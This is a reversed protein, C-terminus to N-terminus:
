IALSGRAGAWVRGEAAQQARAALYQDIDRAVLRAQERIEPVATLEWHSGRALTGLAYLTRQASGDRSIVRSRPDTALGLALADSQAIGEAVANRLLPNAVRLPHTQPGTCNILVAGELMQRGAAQRLTARLARRAAIFELSELRGRTVKLQGRAIARNLTAHVAPALRHRHVDWFPRVHRLFRRQESLNWASWLAPAMSRLETMVGRWRDGRVDEGSLERVEKVIARLSAPFAGHLGAPFEVATGHSRPLLARRSFALVPGAHRRYVLEAVVDVATLSTGAILVAAHRPIAEKREVEWPNNLILNQVEPALDAGLPTPPENGTALVVIDAPVPAGQTPFVKWGGGDAVVRAAVARLWSLQINPVARISQLRSQLYEGYFQRPAFEEVRWNFGRRSRESTLWHLFDNADGNVSMNCARTNLLHAPCPTSYAVGAGLRERPEMITVALARRTREKLAALLLAASAGGGCIVVRTPQASKNTPSYALM